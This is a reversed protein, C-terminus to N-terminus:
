PLGLVGVSTLSSLMPWMWVTDFQMRSVFSFTLTVSLSYSGSGDKEGHSLLLQVLLQPILELGIAIIPVALLLVVKM